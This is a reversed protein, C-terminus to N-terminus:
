FEEYLAFANYKQVQHISQQSILANEYCFEICNVRKLPFIIPPLHPGFLPLKERRPPLHINLLSTPDFIPLRGGLSPSKVHICFEECQVTVTILAHSFEM